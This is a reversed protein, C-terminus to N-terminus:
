PTGREPALPGAPVGPFARGAKEYERRLASVLHHRAICTGDAAALFGAAVAANRIFGGVVPYLAALEALDVDGALPAAEPLHGRWLAHREAAAPEDFEVVFELRRTFAPDINQRLNTSLIAMGEFRELRALLYATELNAYRDHADSVETRRGFLADAEDFFLVAQAREAADFVEALNKETEGIWKSVVRSIDVLLLDVGLEGALVEAALTKGTGSPGAFLMRVGRAGPRGALFGWEDLVRAQQLLRDVAERLQAARDDALVLQKWGATPRRLKVGAPLALTTRARVSEAVDEVRPARGDLMEFARLDAAVAAAAAPEISYRAALLAADEALAPLAERWMHRRATPTLRQVPVAVVPRPGRVPAAGPRACIVIPGPYDEFAPGESGAREVGGLRLVPVVGRALAHVAVLREVESTTPFPLSVATVGATQALAAARELAVDESDDTVLVTCRLHKVLAARARTAAPASLWGELGSVIVPGGLPVVGAPWADFGYLVPWLADALLLSREVFPGDSGLRLVGSRTAPGCALLQHLLAREASTQCLLQDALGVTPRPEGRPSLARLVSAYGEHEEPLGALLLLDVECPSLGLAEALRDLPHPPGPPRRDLPGGSWAELPLGDAATDFMMTLFSRGADLAGPLTAALLRALRGALLGLERRLREAETM